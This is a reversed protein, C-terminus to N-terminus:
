TPTERCSRTDTWFTNVGISGNIAVFGRVEQFQEWTTGGPLRMLLGVMWHGDGFYNSNGVLFEPYPYNQGGGLTPGPAPLVAVSPPLKVGIQIKTGAPNPRVSPDLDEKSFSYEVAWEWTGMYPSYQHEDFIAASVNMWAPYMGGSSVVRIEPSELEGAYRIESWDGTAPFVLEASRETRPVYLPNENVESVGGSVDFELLYDIDM